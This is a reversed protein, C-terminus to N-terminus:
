LYQNHLCSIVVSFAKEERTIYTRKSMKKWFLGTKDCNFVQEPIFGERDVFDKLSRWLNKLLMKIQLPLKGMGLWVTFGQERKLITLGRKVLRLNKLVLVLPIEGLTV